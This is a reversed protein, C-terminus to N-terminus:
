EGVMVLRDPDAFPLPRLLTSNVASFIATNAGIVLALTGIAAMTLAPNRRLARAAFRSDAVLDELWRTGRADRHAEKLREAGGFAVLAQRRAERPTMGRDLNKHTELAVHHAIEEDLERDVRTGELLAALAYRLRNLM